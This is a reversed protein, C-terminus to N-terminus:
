KALFGAQIKEKLEKIWKNYIGHILPTGSPYRPAAGIQVPEYSDQQKSLRYKLNKSSEYAISFSQQTYDIRVTTFHKDKHEYSGVVPGNKGDAVKWGAQTASEAIVGRVEQLSLTKGSKTVIPVNEYTVMAVPDPGNVSKCGFLTLAILVVCSIIKM